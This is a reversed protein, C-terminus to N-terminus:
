GEARVVRRFKGGQSRAEPAQSDLVVEVNGLGRETLFTRIRDAALRGAGDAAATGAASGEVRVHLTTPGTQILQTRPGGPVADLVTGVALPLITRAQGGADVFRLADDHRGAVKIAPLPSGCPCPDPRALISDGLDYRLIPQVRNALNTLLATHSATGAPVPRLEEDVPELIVWDENVHLWGEACDAAIVLFESAAYADRVAASPFAAAIRAREHEGYSEGALEVITPHLHLRGALQEDALQAVASAYGTLIAPDFDDLGACLASLDQQLSFVRNNHRRWLNRGRESEMWGVGAFHGGTGVVAAWRIGRALVSLWQAASLWSVDLRVTLGRYVAIAGPDHVFIGPHGTTGSTTCAFYEGLYPQGVNETDSLFDEVGALTIRPDTVWRDFDAMLQPKTVTPLDLLAIGSAPVDAYLDAYVPSHARAHAVLSQLRDRQRQELGVPGQRQARFIDVVVRAEASQSSTM